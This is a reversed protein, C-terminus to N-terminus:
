FLEAEKCLAELRGKARQELKSVNSLSLNMMAAIERTTYGHYHKLLLINRYRAPLQAMCRALENDGTYEVSVGMVEEEFPLVSHRQKWRYLDIAHNEVITVIYSKTKPSELDSIKTINKAISVFANHVADEADQPNGLVRFAIAYMMQRYLCYVTEFKLRDEPTDIMQLYILM